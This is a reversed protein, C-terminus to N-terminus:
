RVDGCYCATFSPRDLHGIACFYATLAGALEGRGVNYLRRYTDQLASDNSIAKWVTQVADPSYHPQRYARTFTYEFRWDAASPATGPNALYWTSFDSPAGSGRDYTFM